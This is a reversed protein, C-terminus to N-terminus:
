VLLLGVTRRIRCVFRRAKAKTCNYANVCSAFCDILRTLGSFRRTKAKTCNYANVCSAFCDVLRTLGSFRRTKAKTYICATVYVWLGPRWRRVFLLRQYWEIYNCVIEHLIRCVVLTPSDSHKPKRTITHLQILFVV